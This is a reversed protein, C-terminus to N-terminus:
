KAVEKRAAVVGASKFAEIDDTRFRLCRGLKLATLRGESVLRRVSVPHFGLHTAVEAVSFLRPM